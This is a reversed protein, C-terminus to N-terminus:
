DKSFSKIKKLLLLTILSLVALISSAVFSMKMSYNDAIYGTMSGGILFSIACVFNFIGIGTGKLHPPVIDIIKAPFISQSIGIYAGLFLLAIIMTIINSGFIFLIDSLLFIIIGAIFVNERKKLKDSIVGAPYSIFSNAIQYFIMCVPGYYIPLKLTKIVYLIVISETVKSIMYTCAIAILVWYQTGLSKIDSLTIKRFQIKKSPQEKKNPKLGQKKDHIFFVIIILALGSPISALWFVFQYDCNSKIAFIFALVSGTVSGLAALMQRFGFCAGKINKPAWDGVIADRPTSQIGNGFRELIKAQFLYWYTTATAELPKAIFLFFGGIFLLLKRNMLCDSVVGSAIKIIFSFSEVAGDLFGIKKLDVGLKDHLYIGFISFVILTSTNLLFSVIGIAKITRPIRSLIKSM